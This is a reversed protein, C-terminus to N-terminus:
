ELGLMQAALDKMENGSKEWYTTITVFQQTKGITYPILIYDYSSDDEWYSDYFEEHAIIFEVGDVEYEEYTVKYDEINSNDPLEGNTIYNSVYLTDTCDVSISDFYQNENNLDFAGGYSSAFTVVYGDPVYLTCIYNGDYDHLQLEGKEADYYESDIYEEDVTFDGGVLDDDVTWYGGQNSDDDIDADEDSTKDKDDDSDKKDKDKDKKDKDKKDKDKKDKDKKDKKDKAKKSKKDSDDDDEDDDDDADKSVKTKEDPVNSCAVMSFAMLSALMIMVIRKKM